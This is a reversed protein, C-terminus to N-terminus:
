FPLPMGFQVYLGHGRTTFKGGYQFLYRLTLAGQLTTFEPGIGNNQSKNVQAILPADAGHTSTVQWQAYGAAGTRQSSPM